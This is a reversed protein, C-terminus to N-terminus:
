RRRGKWWGVGVVVVWNVGVAGLVVGVGWWGRGEGLGFGRLVEGGTGVQCFGCEGEGGVAGLGDVVYGGWEGVWRQMYGACGGAGVGFGGPLSFRVVEGEACRVQRGALVGELVGEVVGRLPNISRVLGWVGPMAETSAPVGSSVLLATWVATHILRRVSPRPILSFLLSLSSLYLLALSLLLAPLLLSSSSLPSPASSPSSTFPWPLSLPLLFTLPLFLSLPLSSLLDASILALPALSPHIASASSTTPPLPPLQLLPLSAALLVFVSFIQNETGRQTNPMRHFSFGVFLGIMAGLVLKTYIYKPSRWYHRLVRKTVQVFQTGMSAAYRDHKDPKPMGCRSLTHDAASSTRRAAKLRELEEQVWYYEPSRKWTSHWDIKGHKSKPSAEDNIVRMVWEAPNESNRCRVACHREFYSKLRSADDGVEGFYVTKGGDQLLLLRDFNRFRTTSPEQISCLIAQGANALKRLLNCISWATQSDLGTTPEDLFLLLDPKAALEIGVTVRKKQEVNLGEGSAGITADALDEMDLMALVQEVYALKEQKPVSRPMRLLASFRLAERVTSTELHIDQQQAYGISRQFAANRRSGDVLIGGSVLGTKTRSALVELLTTKGSGPVGMLATLTGPKVWGDINDLLRKTEMGDKVDYCLNQWHLISGNHKVMETSVASAGSMGRPRGTSITSTDKVSEEDNTSAFRVVQKWKRPFVIIENKAKTPSVLEAALLYSILFGVMFVLVIGVSMWKNNRRFGYVAELYSDGSVISAGVVSGPVNCVQQGLALNGYDPVDQSCPFERGAFENVMLSEFAYSVPNAYKLWSSWVPMYSTPIPLGSYAVMVLICLTSPISAWTTSRVISGVTRFMSSLTISMIFSVLFFFFFAASERRLNALFYLPISFCTANLVKLPISGLVSALAEASPHYLAHQRHKNIVNRRSHLHFIENSSNLISILLTLFLLVGRSFFTVTGFPLNYFVSGIILGLITNVLVPLLHWLPTTKQQQVDRWLCMKVQQAFSLIYPSTSRAGKSQQANKSAIFERSSHGGVPFKEEWRYIDRLLNQRELSDQWLTAFDDASRPVLGHFSRRVKREAESTVSTLFDATSVGPACEFGMQEFYRRADKTKGFYLQRGEHVLLVKDFMQYVDESAQYLSIINCHQLLDSGLRLDKCFELVSDSDLGRTTNDWAQIASGSLAIEAISVVRREDSSLRSSSKDGMRVDALDTLGYIAMIVESLRVAWFNPSVGGPICRPARMRAAFYLTDAVTLDPLHDDNEAVYIVEGRCSGQVDSLSLGQFNLSSGEKMSLGQTQGTITKMFTSCGSSPASLVLLMEGPKVMGEFDKLIQVPWGGRLNLTRKIAQGLQLIANGVTGQYNSGAQHANVTLNRFVVGATRRPNKTPDRLQLISWIWHKASFTDNSPDLQAGPSASFPNWM